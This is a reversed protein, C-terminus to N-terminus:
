LLCKFLHRLEDGEVQELKKRGCEVNDFLGFSTMTM